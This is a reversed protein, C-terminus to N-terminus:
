PLVHELMWAPVSNFTILGDVSITANRCTIIGEHPLLLASQHHLTALRSCEYYNMFRPLVGEFM